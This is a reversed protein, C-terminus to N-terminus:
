EVTVSKALNRPMDPNLNNKVAILYSLLQFPIITYIPKYIDEVDIGEIINSFDIVMGERSVIENITSSFENKDKNSNLMLVISGKEILSLTGHKLEGAFMPLTFIYDIERIKLSAEILTLYDIEKAILILKDKDKLKEVIDELSLSQMYNKLKSAFNKINIKYNPNLLKNTIYAFVFLQCCYTKTSAVALEKKANILIVMDAMRAITSTRENTIALIRGNYRKIQEAVKICDATEGSQSVIIHLHESAIQKNVSYNSALITKTNVNLKNQFLNEGILCSNYATGCGLMTIQKVNNFIDNFNLNKISNYTNIISNPTEYIEKLMYHKFNNLEMEKLTNAHKLFEIPKNNYHTIKNNAIKLIDGDQLSYLDGKPLSSIDSSVYIEQQTKLIHLPSFKKILYLEGQRTGIILSFSGTLDTFINNLDKNIDITTLYNAIVETDTDSYFTIGNRVLKLKIEDSNKVIGNHVITYEGNYSMHPHANTENVVGNTAWRTHGFAINPKKNCKKLNKLTGIAKNVKFGCNDFYAIGCSDYGRYQLMNLGKLVKGYASGRNSIYGYIGCM